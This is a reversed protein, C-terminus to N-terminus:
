EPVVLSESEEVQDSLLGLERSLAELDDLIQETDIQPQQNSLQVLTALCAELATAFEYRTVLEDGRFTGDPYGSLCGYDEALTSVATYAWHNPSVDAFGDPPFIQALRQGSVEARVSLPSSLAPLALDSMSRTSTAGENAIALPAIMGASCVSLGLSLLIRAM